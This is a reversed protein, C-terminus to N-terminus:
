GGRYRRAQYLWGISDEYRMEEKRHPGAEVICHPCAITCKFTQMLGINKLFPIEANNNTTKVNEKKNKSKEIM